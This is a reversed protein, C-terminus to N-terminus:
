RSRKETRRENLVMVVEDKLGDPLEVDRLHLSRVWGPVDDERMSYFVERFQDTESESYADSHRGAYDDLEEDDYYEIQKSLAALLSDRECVEHQGCCQMDRLQQLTPSAPPTHKEPHLRSRHESVYGISGVVLGLGVLALILYIM